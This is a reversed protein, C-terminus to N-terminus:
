VGAHEAVLESPSDDHSRPSPAAPKSSGQVRQAVRNFDTALEAWFDGPRFQVPAVERGEALDHMARRLRVMPGAFRNTLKCLERIFIPALVLVVLMSPGHRRLMNQWADRPEGSVLELFLLFAGVTVLFMLWHMAIHLLVTGQVAWDSLHSNRPKKSAAM